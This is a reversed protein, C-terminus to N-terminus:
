RTTADYEERSWSEGTPATVDPRRDRIRTKTEEGADRTPIQEDAKGTRTGMWGLIYTIGRLVNLLALNDNQRLIKVM